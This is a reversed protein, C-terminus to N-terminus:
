KTCYFFLLFNKSFAILIICYIFPGPEMNLELALSIAIPAFLVATANNSIFNTIIAVIIFLISLVSTISLGSTFKTITESIFIAGGTEQLAISLMITSAVLLYVRLDLASVADKITVVKFILMLTAGM